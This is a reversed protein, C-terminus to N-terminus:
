LAFPTLIGRQLVMAKGTPWRRARPNRLGGENVAQFPPNVVFFVFVV